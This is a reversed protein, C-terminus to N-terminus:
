DDEPEGDDNPVTGEPPDDDSGFPIWPWGFM